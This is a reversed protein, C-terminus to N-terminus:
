VPIAGPRDRGLRQERYVTYLGGAMIVAGGAWTTWPAHTDWILWGLLVAWLLQSYDFPVVVAVPAYRLSANLCIQGVGGFVGMLALIGWTVPDHFLAFFPMAAGLLLISSITFWLVSTRPSETRGLQRILINVCAVGFAAAVALGLGTVPLAGGGPRMVILVGIFGILVASWRHRGVAERLVLASLAVAFLPAAFSITTAEALPLYSLAAFAMLMTCLGVLSRALHSVPRDTRWAGLDRSWGIWALLPLLAFVHRYFAMEVTNVGHDYGLKIMAAMIAFSTAGALRIIIGLMRNPQPRPSSTMTWGFRM